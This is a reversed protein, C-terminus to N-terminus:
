DFVRVDNEGLIQLFATRWYEANRPAADIKGMQRLKEDFERIARRMEPANQYTRLADADEVSDFELITKM